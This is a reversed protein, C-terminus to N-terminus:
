IQLHFTNYKSHIVGSCIEALNVNSAILDLNEVETNVICEKITCEDLMLEYITHIFSLSYM